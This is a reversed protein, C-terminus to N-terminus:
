RGTVRNAADSAVNKADKLDSIVGKLGRTHIWWAANTGILAIVLIIDLIM